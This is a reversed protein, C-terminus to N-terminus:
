LFLTERILPAKRIAIKLFPPICIAVISCAIARLSPTDFGRWFIAFLALKAAARMSFRPRAAPPTSTFAAPNFIAAAARSLTDKAAPLADARISDMTGAAADARLAIFEIPPMADPTNELRLADRILIPEINAPINAIPLKADIIVCAL